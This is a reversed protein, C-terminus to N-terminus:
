RSGRFRPLLKVFWLEIIFVHLSETYTLVAVAHLTLLLTNPSEKCYSCVVTVIKHENCCPEGCNQYFTFIQYFLLFQHKV